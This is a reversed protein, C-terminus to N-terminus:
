KYLNVRLNKLTGKFFRWPEGNGNLSAGFTVPIDFTTLNKLKGLNIVNGENIQLYYVDNYRKIYVSQVDTINFNRTSTSPFNLELKTINKEHRFVFGPYPAIELMANLISALENYPPGVIEDIDFYIEFNKNINEESFLKIDTNVYNNGGFVLEDYFKANDGLDVYEKFEFQLDSNLRSDLLETIGDKYKFTVNFTASEKSKIVDGLMFGM